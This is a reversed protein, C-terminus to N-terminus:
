LVLATINLPLYCTLQWNIQDRHLYLVNGNAGLENGKGVEIIETEILAFIFILIELLFNCYLMETIVTKIPRYLALTKISMKIELIWRRSHCIVMLYYLRLWLAFCPFWEVCYYKRWKNVSNFLFLNLFLYILLFSMKIEWLLQQFYDSKWLM